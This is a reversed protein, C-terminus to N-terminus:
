GSAAPSHPSEEGLLLGVASTICGLSENRRLDQHLPLLCAESALNLVFHSLATDVLIRKTVLSLFDLGLHRQRPPPPPNPAWRLNLLGPTTSPIQVWSGVRTRYTNPSPAPKGVGGLFEGACWSPTM